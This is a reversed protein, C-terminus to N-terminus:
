EKDADRVAAELAQNWLAHFVKFGRILLVLVVLRLATGIFPFGGGAEYANVVGLVGDVVFGAITVSLIMTSRRRKLLLALVAYGVGFGVSDIGLGQQLLGELEFGVAAVGLAASVGGVLFILVALADIRAQPDSASGPLAVGDATLRLESGVLQVHLSQETPLEFSRGKKLAEADGIRGLTRGDFGVEFDRWPGTWAVSVRKPGGRELPYEHRPM